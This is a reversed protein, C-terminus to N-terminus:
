FGIISLMSVAFMLWCCTVWLLCDVVLSYSGTGSTCYGVCEKDHDDDDDGDDDDDDDDVCVGVGVVDDDDQNVNDHSIAVVVSLLVGLWMELWSWM